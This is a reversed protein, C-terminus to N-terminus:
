DVLLLLLGFLMAGDLMGGNGNRGVGGGVVVDAGAVVDAVVVENKGDMLKGIGAVLAAVSVVVDSLELKLIGVDEDGTLATFLVAGKVKEMGVVPKPVTLFPFILRERRM